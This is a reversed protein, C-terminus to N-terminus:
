PNIYTSRPIDMDESVTIFESLEVPVTTGGNLGADVWATYWLSAVDIASQNLLTTTFSQTSAWLLSYYTNSSTSGASKQAATDAATILPYYPYNASLLSFCFELQNSRYIAGSGSTSSISPTYKTIMTTEYRSHVGNANYNKTLHMPQSLDATYHSVRTMWYMATTLNSSTPNAKWTRLSETFKQNVSVVAFLCYGSSVTYKALYDTYSRPFTTFPWQIASNADADQYHFYSENADWGTRVGNDTSTDALWQKYPRFVTAMSVPLNEIANSTIRTHCYDGWALALSTLLLFSIILSARFPKINKM